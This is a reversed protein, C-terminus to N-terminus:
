FLLKTQRKRHFALAFRHAESNALLIASQNAKIFNEEGIITKPRHREDKTVAVATIQSNKQEKLVSRLVSLQPNSGDVVVAVPIHWESHEFRRELIEKLAKLDHVQGNKLSRIKFLRYEAKRPVGNEIVTMSGVMNSGALHAVDFAEIRLTPGQIRGAPLCTPLFTRGQDSILSVDNIHKLAFIQNRYKQALEFNRAKAAFKMARVLDKVLSGKRGTFFLRLHRITKAYEKQSIAGVCVGPCLGIQHNFCGRMKELEAGSGMKAKQLIISHVPECKDRFPFIKRIIKLANRLDTGNPFPGFYTELQLNCTALKGSIIDRQRVILVRPFDEKTIVVCNFSRDDKEKTNYKPQYKKILEAELLVAELVSDTKQWKIKDALAVMDVM